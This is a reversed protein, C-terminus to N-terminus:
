IKKRYLVIYYSILLDIQSIIVLLCTQIYSKQFDLAKQKAEDYGLKKHQILRTKGKYRREMYIGYMCIMGRVPNVNEIGFQGLSGITHNKVQKHKGQRKITIILNKKFVQNDNLLISKDYKSMENYEEAELEDKSNCSFPKILVIKFHEIGINRMHKYLYSQKTPDKAKSRHNGIRDCLRTITSGIYINDDITNILKYIKGSNYKEM